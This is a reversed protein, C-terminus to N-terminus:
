KERTPARWSVSAARDVGQGQKEPGADDSAVRESAEM